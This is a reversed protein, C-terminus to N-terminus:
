YDLCVFILYGNKKNEESNIKMQPKESFTAHMEQKFSTWIIIKLNKTLNPKHKKKLDHALGWNVLKLKLYRTWFIQWFYYIQSFLPKNM